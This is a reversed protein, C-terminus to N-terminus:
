SLDALTLECRKASSVHQKLWRAFEADNMTRLSVMGANLRETTADDIVFSASRADASRGSETLARALVVESVTRSMEYAINLDPPLGENGLYYPMALKECAHIGVAYDAVDRAVSRMTEEQSNVGSLSFQPAGQATVAPGNLVGSVTGSPLIRLVEQAAEVVTPLATRQAPHLCVSVHETHSAPVDSCIAPPLAQARVVPPGVAVLVIALALPALLWTFNLSWLRKGRARASAIALLGASCLICLSWRLAQVTLPSENGVVPAVSAWTPLAIAFADQHSISSTIAIGQIVYATIPAAFVAIVRRTLIGWTVGFAVWSALTLLNTVLMAGDMTAWTAGRATRILLPTSGLIYGTAALISAVAFVKVTAHSSRPSMPSWLVSDRSFVGALMASMLVVPISLPFM